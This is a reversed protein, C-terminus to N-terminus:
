PASKTWIAIVGCGSNSGQFEGPTESSGRYVEVGKIDHPPTHRAFFATSEQGDIYYQPYCGPPSRVMKAMCDNTLCVQHVGRISILVDILTTPNAREIEEQTVFAGMGAQRRREFDVFRRASPSQNGKVVIEPLEYPLREIEFHHRLVQGSALPVRWSARAYGIAGIEIVFVGAGLGTIAFEGSSDTAVVFGTGVLTVRARGVPEHTDRSTVQGVVASSDHPLTDRQQAAAPAATAPSLYYYLFPLVVRSLSTTM